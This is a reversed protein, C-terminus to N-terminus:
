CPELPMETEKWATMALARIGHDAEMPSIDMSASAATVREQCHIGFPFITDTASFTEAFLTRTHNM